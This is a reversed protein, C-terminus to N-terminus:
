AELKYDQNDLHELAMIRDMQEDTFAQMLTKSLRRIARIKEWEGPYKKSFHTDKNKVTIWIMDLDTKTLIERTVQGTKFTAVAYSAIIPSGGKLDIKHLPAKDLGLDDFADKERVVEGRIYTLNNDGKHLAAVFAKYMPRFVVIDLGHEKEKHIDWYGYQKGPPLKSRAIYNVGDLLSRKYQPTPEDVWIKDNHLVELMTNNFVKYENESRFYKQWRAESDSNWATLMTTKKEIQTEM